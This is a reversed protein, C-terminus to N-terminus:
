ILSGWYEAKNGYVKVMDPWQTLFKDSLYIMFKGTGSKEYVKTGCDIYVVHIGLFKAYISIPIAIAGGTSIILKPREKFLIAFVTTLQIVMKILLPRDDRFFYAPRLNQSDKGRYTVWFVDYKEYVASLEQMETLHGGNACVLAIKM